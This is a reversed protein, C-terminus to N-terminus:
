TKTTQFLISLTCRHKACRPPPPPCCVTTSVCRPVMGPELPVARNAEKNAKSQRGDVANGPAAFFNNMQM